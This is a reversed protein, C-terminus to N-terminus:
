IQHKEQWLAVMECNDRVNELFSHRSEEDPIMSAHEMLLHYGEELYQMARPDSNAEMVQYCTQYERYPSEANKLYPLIKEVYELARAPNGQALAIRALGALPKVNENLTGGKKLMELFHNYQEAAGSYDQQAELIFGLHDTARLRQDFEGYKDLLEIARRGYTLAQEYDGMQYFLFGFNNECDALGGPFDMEEFIGKAKEMFTFATQYEGLHIYTNGLNNLTLASGWRDGIDQFIDLAEQFFRRASGHDNQRSSLRGLNGISMAQGRRDGIEGRIQLAEQHLRTAEMFDGTSFFLNAMNNLTLCESQRDGIAKVISMGEKYHQRAEEYKGQQMLRVAINNLTIAEGKRHGLMQFLQRAQQYILVAQEDQGRMWITNALGVLDKAQLLYLDFVEEAPLNTHSETAGQLRKEVVALGAEHNKQSEEYDGMHYLIYGSAIYGDVEQHNDGTKRALEIGKQAAALGPNYKGTLNYFNSWNIHVQALKREDGLSEAIAQLEQLDAEQAQREGRTSYVKERALLLDFREAPMSPSALELGRSLIELADTNAARAAVQTGAQYLYHVAKPKIGAEEFHRALQLAISDAQEGYLAELVHGVDQHFYRRQASTMKNYIYVRILNHNFQFISLWLDKVQQTGMDEILRHRTVLEDSLQDVVKRTNAELVRM